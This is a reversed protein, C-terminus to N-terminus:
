CAASCAATRPRRWWRRWPPPLMVDELVHVYGNKCIVDPKVVRVGNVSIGGEQWEKGNYLISYDEATMGMTNMQSQTFHVMMPANQALTIGRGNFRSWYSNAFMGADRVQRISDLYSASTTRRMALGPTAGDSGTVNPLMDSLYAMDIMAANMITRKQAPSLQEYTRVGYPNNAFFRSFAEDSAPFLTKSGTRSLVDRYELDDVLRLFTTYEGEGELWNYISAGLNSPEQDDYGYGDSCSSTMLPSLGLALVLAKTSFRKVRM